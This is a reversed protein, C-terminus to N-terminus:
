SSLELALPHERKSSTRERHGDAARDLSISFSLICLEDPHQRLRCLFKGAALSITQIEGGERVVGGPVLTAEFVKGPGAELGTFNSFM